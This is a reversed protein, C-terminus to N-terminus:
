YIILLPGLKGHKIESMKGGQRGVNVDSERVGPWNGEWRLFIDCVNGSVLHRFVNYKFMLVTWCEWLHM